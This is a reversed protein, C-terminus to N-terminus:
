EYILQARDHGQVLFRHSILGQLDDNMEIALYDGPWLFIGPVGSNFFSWRTLILENGAGWTVLRGDYSHGAWSGNNTVPVGSTLDSIVVDNANYHKLEIGNSLGNTINGYDDVSSGTTDEIEVILRAVVLKEGTAATVKAVGPTSSYDGNWNITGTGDGNSSLYQSFIKYFSQTGVQQESM